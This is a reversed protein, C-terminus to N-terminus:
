SFSTYFGPGCRLKIPTAGGVMLITLNGEFGADIISPPVLVGLRAFTSRISCTGIIDNPLAIDEGTKVLIKEGPNLVFEKANEKVYIANVADKDDIDVTPGASFRSIEDGITLDVGNERITPESIPTIRIRGEGLMRRIDVDALVM